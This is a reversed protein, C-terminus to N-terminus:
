AYFPEPRRAKKRGSPAVANGIRGTLSLNLGSRGATSDAEAGGVLMRLSYLVQEIESSRQSLEHANGAMEESSSALNQIMHKMESMVANLNTIDEAQNRTASAMQQVLGNVILTDEEGKSSNLEARRLLTSTNQAAEASKKALNRVEEAVVAFGKGADGARAAEVAANLALLNTQFAIEDIDSIIESTLKSTDTIEKMASSLDDVSRTAESANAATLQVQGSIKELAQNTTEVSAAQQTASTAMRESNESFAASINNFADISSSFVGIADIVPSALWGSVVISVGLILVFLFVLFGGSLLAIKNVLSKAESVTVDSVLVWHMDKIKIPTFASFVEDGLYSEQVIVGHDGQLAKKVSESQAIGLPQPSLYSAKVSYTDSARYSDSRLRKDMGVIYTEGTQGQGQRANVIATIKDLPLQFALVGTLTGNEYVPSAIFSAPDGNSPEYPAYDILVSEGKELKLAGQFAMGLGSEAYKGSKLNTAYDLEKFVTYLLDGNTNFLFIDYYGFRQQTEFFFPHYVEHIRSYESGDKAKFLNHKQGVPYENQEIYIKQLYAVPDRDRGLRNWAKNFDRIAEASAVNASLTILHDDIVGFYDEIQTGRSLNTTELKEEIDNNIRNNIVMFIIGLFLILPLLGLSLTTITIRSRLSRAKM